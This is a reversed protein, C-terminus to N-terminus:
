ALHRAVVAKVLVADITGRLDDLDASCIRVEELAM